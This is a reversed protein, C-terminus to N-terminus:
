QSQRVGVRLNYLNSTHGHSCRDSDSSRLYIFEGARQRQFYSVSNAKQQDSLTKGGDRDLMAAGDPRSASRDRRGACKCAIM